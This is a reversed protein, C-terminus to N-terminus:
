PQFYKTQSVKSYCFFPIKRSLHSKLKKKDSFADSRTYNVQKFEYYRLIIGENGKSLKKTSWSVNTTDIIGM